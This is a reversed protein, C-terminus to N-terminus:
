QIEKQEGCGCVLFVGESTTVKAADKHQCGSAEAAEVPQTKSIDDAGLLREVAELAHVSALCAQKAAKISQIVLDLENM